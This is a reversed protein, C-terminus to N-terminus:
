LVRRGAGECTTSLVGSALGVPRAEPVGEILCNSKRDTNDLVPFFRHARLHNYPM